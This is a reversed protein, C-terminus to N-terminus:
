SFVIDFNWRDAGREALAAGAAQTAFVAAREADTAGDLDHQLVLDQQLMAADAPFYLQTVTRSQRGAVDFHIHAARMFGRNAPYPAPKITLFRYEGAANTTIRAFGQFDPDLPAPNRDRPHAYRGAANCQWIELMANQQPSGDARLVRGAVEIVSGKARAKHGALRTLDADVDVPHEVPFFPGLDMRPTPQLRSQAAAPFALAGVLGLVVRRRGLEGSHESRM